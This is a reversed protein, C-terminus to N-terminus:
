AAYILSRLLKIRDAIFALSSLTSPKYTCCHPCAHTFLYTRINTIKSSQKTVQEVVSMPLPLFFCSLARAPARETGEIEIKRHYGDPQRGFM